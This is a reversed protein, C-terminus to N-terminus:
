GCRGTGAQCLFKVGEGFAVNQLGASGVGSVAEFELTRM